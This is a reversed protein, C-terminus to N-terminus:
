WPFFARDNCIETQLALDRFFFARFATFGLYSAIIRQATYPATHIDSNHLRDVFKEFDCNALMPFFLTRAGKTVFTMKCMALFFQARKRFFAFFRMHIMRM